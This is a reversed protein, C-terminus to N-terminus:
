RKRKVQEITIGYQKLARGIKEILEPWDKQWHAFEGRIRFAVTAERQGKKKRAIRGTVFSMVYRGEDFHGFIL